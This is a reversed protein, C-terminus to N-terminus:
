GAVSFGFLAAAEAQQARVHATLMLQAAHFALTDVQEEFWGVRRDGARRAWELREETAAV